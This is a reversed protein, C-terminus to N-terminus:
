ALFNSGPPRERRPRRMISLAFPPRAHGFSRERDDAAHRAVRWIELVRVALPDCDEGEVFSAAFQAPEGLFAPDIARCVKRNMLAIAANVGAAFHKAPVLPCDRGIAEVRPVSRKRVDVFLRREAANEGMGTEVPRPSEKEGGVVREVRFRIVAQRALRYDHKGIRASPPSAAGTQLWEWEPLPGLAARWSLDCAWQTRALGSM